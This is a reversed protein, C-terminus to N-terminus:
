TLYVAPFPRKSVLKQVAFYVDDDVQTRFRELSAIFPSPKNGCKLLWVGDYLETKVTHQPIAQINRAEREITIVHNKVTVLCRGVAHRSSTRQMASQTATQLKSVTPRFPLGGVALILTSLTDIVVLNPCGIPCSFQLNGMSNVSCHDNIVNATQKGLWFRSQASLRAFLAIAEFTPYGQPESTLYNRIRVRESTTKENSPDNIWSQQQSELYERLSERRTNLAPRWFKINEYSSWVTMGSMGRTGSTPKARFSRMVLTEAQDNLTHGLAITSASIKRAHAVLLEYRARRADQSSRKIDPSWTLTTHPVEIRTCLSAVFNAEDSAEPRLGHDVTAAHLEHNPLAAKLQLLLALSDSGGSVAVLIPSTPAEGIKILM